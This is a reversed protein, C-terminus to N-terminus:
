GTELTWIFTEENEGHLKKGGQKISKACINCFKPSEAQAEVSGSEAM